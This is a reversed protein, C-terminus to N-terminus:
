AAAGPFDRHIQSPMPGRSGQYKGDYLQAQGVTSFFMVQALSDGAYVRLPQVVRLQHTLQGLSGQDILGATVHSYAGLRASGSRSGMMPVHFDSGVVEVSAGLYIRDPQLVIGNPPIEVEEYANAARTDLVPSTYFALTPGLTLNYSNPNVQAPNFPDIRLRGLDRERVIEPGTLIPM